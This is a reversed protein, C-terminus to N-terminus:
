KHFQKGKGCIVDHKSPSFSHHLQKSQGGADSNTAQDMRYSCTKASSSKFDATSTNCFHDVKKLLDKTEVEERNAFIKDFLGLPLSPDLSLITTESNM